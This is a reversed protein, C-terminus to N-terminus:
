GLNKGELWRCRCGQKELLRFLGDAALYVTATNINPHVGILKGRFWNDLGWEVRRAPDNLLGFPTVSGLGLGLIKKLEEPSAMTLPGSSFLERLRQFDAKANRPLTVLFYRGGKREKLFLNKAVAEPHPLSLGEEMHYLAPHEVLEYPITHQTLLNLIKNM